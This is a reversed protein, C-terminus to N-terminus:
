STPEFSLMKCYRLPDDIRVIRPEYRSQIAADQPFEWALRGNVLMERPQIETGNNHMIPIFVFRFEDQYGYKEDKLWYGSNEDTDDVSHGIYNCEM